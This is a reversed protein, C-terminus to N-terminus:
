EPLQDLARNLEVVNVQEEGLFGLLPKETHVRILDAVKEEAVNRAAAIRQSQFAAAAVSIHPDLGSASATVLDGPVADLQNKGNERRLAEARQAVQDILKASTPGLNSAASNAADYGDDGAASPRGHFYQPESFAQGILASGLTQGSAEQLLSGNAQGPFLLQAAGTMALPYCLGLVATFLVLLRLSIKISKLM